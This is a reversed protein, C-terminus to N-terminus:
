GLAVCVVTVVCLALGLAQPRHVPERLVVSALVVTAAPYLSALVASV